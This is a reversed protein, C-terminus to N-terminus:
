LGNGARTMSRLVRGKYGIETGKKGSGAASSKKENGTSGGVSRRTRGGQARGQVVASAPTSATTSRTPPKKNVNGSQLESSSDAMEGSKRKKRGIRGKREDGAVKEEGSNKDKSDDNVMSVTIAANEQEFASETSTRSTPSNATATNVNEASGTRRLVLV